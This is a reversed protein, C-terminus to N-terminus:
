VLGRQQMERRKEAAERAQDFLKQQEKLKQAIQEPTEESVAHLMPRVAKKTTEYDDQWGRQNLWVQLGQPGYKGDPTGKQWTKRDTKMRQVLDVLDDIDSESFDFEKKASQFAKYALHKKTRGVPWTPWAKYLREFDAPYQKHLM